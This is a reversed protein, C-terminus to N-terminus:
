SNNLQVQYTYRDARAIVEAWEFPSGKSDRTIRRIELVSEADEGLHKKEAKKVKRASVTEDAQEPHIGYDRRLTQYLSEGSLGKNELDPVRDAVLCNTMLCIAKGNITRLRDLQIIRQRAKLNLLYRVKENPTM